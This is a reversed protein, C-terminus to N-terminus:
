LNQIIETTSPVFRIMAPLRSFKWSKSWLNVLLYPRIHANGPPSLYVLICRCSSVPCLASIWRRSIICCFVICLNMRLLHLCVFSANCVHNLSEVVTGCTVSGPSFIRRGCTVICPAYTLRCFTFTCPASIWRCFSFACTKSTWRCCTATLVHQLSEDVTCCTITCPASIWRCYLLHCNM